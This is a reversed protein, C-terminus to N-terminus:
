PKKFAYIIGGALIATGMIGCLLRAFMNPDDIVVSYVLAAGVSIFVYAVLSRM